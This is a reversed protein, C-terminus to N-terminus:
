LAIEPLGMARRMENARAIVAVRHREARTVNGRRTRDSRALRENWYRSWWREAETRAEDRERRLRFPNLNM